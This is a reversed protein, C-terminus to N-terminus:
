RSYIALKLDDVLFRGKSNNWMYVKIKYDPFRYFKPINYSYVVKQWQGQALEERSVDKSKWEMLLGDKVHWVELVLHATSLSDTTYIMASAEARYIEESNMDSFNAELSPSYSEISPMIWSRHGSFSLSDTYRDPSDGVAEFNNISSFAVKSFTSSEELLAKSNQAYLIGVSGTLLLLLSAVRLYRKANSRSTSIWERISTETQRMALSLMIAFLVFLVAVAMSALPSSFYNALLLFNGRLFGHCAFLYMSISGTFTLFTTVMNMKEKVRLLLQIVTILLLAASINAIPWMWRFVNGGIFTLVTLAILWIPVRLEKKVALLIGFCFEPLHGIFLYLPNLSAQQMPAYLLVTAAIGVLSVTVLGTTNFKKVVWMFLPFLAYFQFILSYFWWPGTISLAKDPIFNAILSLQIGLDALTQNDIFRGTSLIVVLIYLVAAILFSPYLKDLRHLLHSTYRPRNKQYSLTLGYASIFIFAQVGYHGLFNFVVNFVEMPNNGLIIFFKKIYLNSFWFENEGTTPNVARFFNHLVILLIAFGKLFHTDNKSFSALTIKKLM